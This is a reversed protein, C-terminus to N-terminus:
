NSNGFYFFPIQMTRHPEGEKKIKEVKLIHKGNELGNTSIFAKIGNEDQNPHQYKIINKPVLTDNLYFQHYQDLCKLKHTRNIMRKESNSLSDPYVAVGCLEELRSAENPFVPVFVEIRESSVKDSSLVASLIMGHEKNRSNEYCEPHAIDGRNYENDFMQDNALFILKSHSAQTILMVMVILTLGVLWGV